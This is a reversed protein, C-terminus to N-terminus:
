RRRPHLMNGPRLQIQIERVITGRLTAEMDRSIRKALDANQESSGGNANVTVPASINVVPAAADVAGGRVTAGVKLPARSGAYGGTSFGRKAANHLAELQPVGIAKTAEKSMVYEGRHVVGAPEFKGGHGTYGGSAFGGGLIKLFGGFVGGAGEAMELMRKQLSLKLIQLILQGVAEKATM